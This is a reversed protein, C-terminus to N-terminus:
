EYRVNLLTLGYAPATVVETRRVGQNIAARIDDQSLEGRRHNADIRATATTTM